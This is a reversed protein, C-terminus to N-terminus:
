AMFSLGLMMNNRLNKFFNIALKNRTECEKVASSKRFLNDWGYRYFKQSIIYRGGVCVIYFLMGRLLVKKINLLKSVIACIRPNTVTTFFYAICYKAFRKKVRNM